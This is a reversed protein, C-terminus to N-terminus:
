YELARRVWFEVILPITDSPLPFCRTLATIFPARRMKEYRVIGGDFRVADVYAMARTDLEGEIDETPLEDPAELRAGNRLLTAVLRCPHHELRQDTEVVMALHLPSRRLHDVANIDAGAKLLTSICDESKSKNRRSGWVAGHLGSWADRPGNVPAGADLLIQICRVSGNYEAAASLATEKIEDNFMVNLDAGAAVLAAVCEHHGGGCARALPTWGPEDRLNLSAGAAVLARVTSTRGANAAIHLATSGSSTHADISGCVDRRGEALAQDLADWRYTYARRQESHAASEAMSLASCAQVQSM